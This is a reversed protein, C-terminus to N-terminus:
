RRQMAPQKLIELVRGSLGGVPIACIIDADAQDPDVTDDEPSAALEAKEAAEFKQFEAIAKLSVKKLPEESREVAALRNSRASSLPLLKTITLFTVANLNGDIEHGSVKLDHM